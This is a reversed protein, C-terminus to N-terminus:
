KTNEKTNPQPPPNPNQLLIKPKLYDESEKILKSIGKSIEDPSLLVELTQEATEKHTRSIDPNKKTLEHDKRKGAIKEISSIEDVISRMKEGWLAESTLIDDYLKQRASIINNYRDNKLNAYGLFRRQEENFSPADQHSVPVYSVVEDMFIDIADRYRYISALLRTALDSEIKESHQERWISLGKYAYHATAAASLAVVIPSIIKVIEVIVSM